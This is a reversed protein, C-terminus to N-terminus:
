EHVTKASACVGMRRVAGAPPCSGGRDFSADARFNGMATTGLAPGPHRSLSMLTGFKCRSMQRNGPARLLNSGLIQGEAVGPQDSPEGARPHDRAPLRCASPRRRRAVSVAYSRRRM